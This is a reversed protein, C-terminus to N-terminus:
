SQFKIYYNKGTNHLAHQEEGGSQAYSTKKWGFRVSVNMVQKRFGVASIVSAPALRGKLTLSRGGAQERVEGSLLKAGV